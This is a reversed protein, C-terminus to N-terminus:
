HVPQVIPAPKELYYYTKGESRSDYTCIEDLDYQQMFNLVAFDGVCFFSHAFLVTLIFLFYQPLLLLSLLGATLISVFPAIAIFRFQKGNFKEQDSGAYFILQSLMAGFYVQKAGMLKYAIGHLLEHVVILLTFCFLLGALLQLPYLLREKLIAQAIGFGFAVFFALGTLMLSISYARKYFGDRAIEEKMFEKFDEHRIEKILAREKM